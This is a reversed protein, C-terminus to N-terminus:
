LDDWLRAPKRLLDNALQQRTQNRQVSDDVGQTELRMSQEVAALQRDAVASAREQLTRALTKTPVLAYVLRCGLAEAARELSHVTINGTPEAKELEVVRPQHVNLRKALQGTTMGLAERIARVWGRAPRPAQVLPRLDALRRDLQEYPAVM